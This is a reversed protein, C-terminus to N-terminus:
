PGVNLPTWFTVFKEGETEPSTFYDAANREIYYGTPNAILDDWFPLSRWGKDEYKFNDFSQAPYVCVDTDYMFLIREANVDREPGIGILVSHEWIHRLQKLPAFDSSGRCTAGANYVKENGELDAQDFLEYGEADARIPFPVDETAKQYVGSLRKSSDIGLKDIMYFM